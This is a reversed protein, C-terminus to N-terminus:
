NILSVLLLLRLLIFFFSKSLLCAPKDPKWAGKRCRVTRNGVNLRYGDSCTINLAVGTSFPDSANKGPTIVTIQTYPDDM